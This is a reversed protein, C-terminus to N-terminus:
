SMRVMVTMVMGPDPMPMIAGAIVTMPM